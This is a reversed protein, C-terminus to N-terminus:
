GVEKSKRIGMMRVAAATNFLYSMFISELNKVFVAKGFKLGLNGILEMVVLRVRWPGEKTMLSLQVLMQNLAEFGVVDAIKNLGEVVNM